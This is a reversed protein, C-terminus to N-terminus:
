TRETHPVTDVTVTFPHRLRHMAVQGCDSARPAATSEEAAPPALFPATRDSSAATM